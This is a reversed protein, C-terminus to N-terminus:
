YSYSFSFFSFFFLKRYSKLFKEKNNLNNLFLFIFLFIQFIFASFYFLNKYFTLYEIIRIEFHVSTTSNSVHNQFSLFFTFVYSFIFSNLVLINLLWLLFSFLCFNKIIKYESKYLAPSFFFLVQSIAFFMIVQNAIFFSILMYSSFIETLNTAIFYSTSFGGSYLRIFPKVFLFLLTEKYYYCVCFVLVWAFIILGIRNRIELLYLKLM